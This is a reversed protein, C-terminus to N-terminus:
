GGGYHFGIAALSALAVVGILGRFLLLGFFPIDEIKGMRRLLAYWGLQVFALVLAGCVPLAFMYFMGPMFAAQAGLRL